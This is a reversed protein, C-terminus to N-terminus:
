LDDIEVIRAYPEEMGETCNTCMGIAKRNKMVTKRFKMYKQNRWIDSFTTRNDFINGFAYEADKDFCCPSVSGDWNITSNM